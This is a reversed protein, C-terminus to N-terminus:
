ALGEKRKFEEYTCEVGDRGCGFLDWAEKGWISSGGSKDVGARFEEGGSGPLIAPARMSCTDSNSKKLPSRPKQPIVKTFAPLSDSKPKAKPRPKPLPNASTPAEERHSASAKSSITPEATQPPGSPIQHLTPSMIPSGELAPPQISSEVETITPAPFPAQPYQPKIPTLKQQTQFVPSSFPRTKPPSPTSVIVPPTPPIPATTPDGPPNDPKTRPPIPDKPTRSPPAHSFLIKDMQALTLATDHITSRAKLISHEPVKTSIPHRTTHYKDETDIRHHNAISHRSTKEKPLKEKTRLHRAPVSGFDEQSLFLSSSLADEAFMMDNGNGRRNEKEQQKELRSKLQDQEQQHFRAMPDKRRRVNRGAKSREESGRYGPSADVAVNRQPLLDRYMLKKRPKHAAIQLRMREKPQADIPITEEESILDVPEVASSRRSPTHGAAFSNSKKNHSPQCNSNSLSPPTEIATSAPKAASNAKHREEMGRVGPKDRSRSNSLIREVRKPPNQKEHLNIPNAIETVTSIARTQEAEKVDAKRRRPNHTPDINTRDDRDDSGKPVAPTKPLPLPDPRANEQLQPEIRQRKAPRDNSWEHNEIEQRLEYPSKTPLAARGVRGKPTGLLANLSKARLQSLQTIAPMEAAISQIQPLAIDEVPVVPAKKRKEFLGSLDQEMSGTAQGVQILVGRDLKIEDGDQLLGDERWHCDGIYNRPNDYVM